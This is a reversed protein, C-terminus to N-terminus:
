QRARQTTSWLLIAGLGAFLAVGSWGTGQLLHLSLLWIVGLWAVIAMAFSGDDVFLGFLEEAITKIWQM